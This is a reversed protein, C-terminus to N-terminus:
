FTRIERTITCIPLSFCSFSYGLSTSVDRTNEGLLALHTYVCIYIYIKHIRTYIRKNMEYEIDENENRVRKKVM